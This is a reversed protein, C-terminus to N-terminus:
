RNLILLDNKNDLTWNTFKNLLGKGAIIRKSKDSVAMIINNIKYHGVQINNVQYKRCTDITGNAMEYKGTGLYSAQSIMGEKKLQEEMEKNILLDTAGTDFLWFQIMSGTKLKIYTMGEMTLIRVTDSAPGLVDKGANENWNKSGTNEERFPDGCKYMMEFFLVSNPNNMKEIEADAIQKSTVLNLQCNCFNRVRVTDLRGDTDNRRISKMCNNIFEEKFGEAQILFTKGSGTYCRQIERYLATDEKILGSLDVMDSNGLQRYQKNTFHGDIKNAQCECITMATKDTREKNLSRLCNNIFNFRNLMPKGEKSSIFNQQQACVPGLGTFLLLLLLSTRVIM